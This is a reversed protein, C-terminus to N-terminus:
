WTLFADSRTDDRYVLHPSILSSSRYGLDDALFAGDFELGLSRMANFIDIILQAHAGLMDYIFDPEDLMLMFMTEMGLRMWTPHFCAHGSYCIFSGRSCAHQYAAVTSKPIRSPNYDMKHRYREWDERNKITFDLWQSTWGEDVHKDIRLAGDADWYKKEETNQTLVREKFQMTYDGGIRAIDDTDFYTYPSIDVPLGERHWREITTTWYTDFLPIRDPLQNALVRKVREKGNM